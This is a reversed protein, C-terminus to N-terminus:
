KRRVFAGVDRGALRGAVQQQRDEAQVVLTWIRVPHEWSGDEGVQIVDLGAGAIVSWFRRFRCEGEAFRVHVGGARREM